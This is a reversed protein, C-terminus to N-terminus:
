SLNVDLAVILKYKNFILKKPHMEVNFFGNYNIFEYISKFLIEIKENLSGKGPYITKILKSTCYVDIIFNKYGESCHFICERIFDEYMGNLFILERNTIQYEMYPELLVLPINLVEPEIYLAKKDMIVQNLIEEIYEAETRYYRFLRVETLLKETLEWDIEVRGNFQSLIKLVNMAAGYKCKFINFIGLYSKITTTTTNKM